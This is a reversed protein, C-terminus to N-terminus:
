PPSCNLSLIFASCCLGGGGYKRLPDARPFLPFAHLWLPNRARLEKWPNWSESSCDLCLSVIIAVLAYCLLGSFFLLAAEIGLGRGQKNRGIIRNAVLRQLNLLQQSHGLFRSKTHSFSLTHHPWTHYEICSQAKKGLM